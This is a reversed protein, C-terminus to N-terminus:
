WLALIDTATTGTAHVRSVMIPLFGSAGVFTVTEGAVSTVRVDGAGGIYLVRSFNPLDTADDPAVAEMHRAPSELGTTRHKFHDM